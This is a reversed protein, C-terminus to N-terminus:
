LHTSGPKSDQYQGIVPGKEVSFSTKYQFKTKLVWNPASPAVLPQEHSPEAKGVLSGISRLKIYKVWISQPSIPPSLLLRAALYSLIHLLSGCLSGRELYFALVSVWPQKGAEVSVSKNVEGTVLWVGFVLHKRKFLFRVSM